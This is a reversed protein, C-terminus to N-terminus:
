LINLLFAGVAWYQWRGQHAFLAAAAVIGLLTVLFLTLAISYEASVPSGSMCPLDFFWTNKSFIRLQYVIGRILAWPGALISVRWSPPRGFLHKQQRSTEM